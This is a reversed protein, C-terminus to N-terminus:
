RAIAGNPRGDETHWIRPHLAGAVLALTNFVGASIFMLSTGRGPERRHHAPCDRGM